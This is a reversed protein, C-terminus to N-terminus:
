EKKIEELLELEEEERIEAQLRALGILWDITKSASKIEMVEQLAFLESATKATVAISVWTKRTANKDSM